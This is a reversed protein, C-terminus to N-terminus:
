QMHSSSYYDQHPYLYLLPHDEHEQILFLHLEFIFHFMQLFNKFNKWFIKTLLFIWYNCMLLFLIKIIMWLGLFSFGNTHSNSTLTVGNLIVSTEELRSKMKIVIGRRDLLRRV